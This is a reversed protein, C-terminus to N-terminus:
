IPLLLTSVCVVSTATAENLNTAIFIIPVEENGKGGRRGRGLRSV